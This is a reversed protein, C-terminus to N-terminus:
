RWPCNALQCLFDKWNSKSACTDRSSDFEKWSVRHCNDALKDKLVDLCRDRDGPKWREASSPFHGWGYITKGDLAMNFRTAQREDNDTFGCFYHRLEKEQDQRIQNSWRPKARARGQEQRNENPKRLENRVQYRIEFPIDRAYEELKMRPPLNSGKVQGSFFFFDHLSPLQGSSPVIDPGAALAKLTKALLGAFQEAAEIERVRALGYGYQDKAGLMGWHLLLHAALVLHGNLPSAAAPMGAPKGGSPRLPSFVLDFQGVLGPYQLPWIHTHLGPGGRDTMPETKRLEVLGIAKSRTGGAAPQEGAVKLAFGRGLGACGFIRCAACTNQPNKQDHRCRDDGTASCIPKDGVQSLSRLLAETWFRLGGLFSTARLYSTEKEHDGTWVPTITEIPVIIAM